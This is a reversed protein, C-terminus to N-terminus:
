VHARGIEIDSPDYEDTLTRGDLDGTVFITGFEFDPHNTVKRWLDFLSEDNNKMITEGQQNISEDNNKM